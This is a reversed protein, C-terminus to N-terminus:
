DVKLLARTESIYRLSIQTRLESAEARVDAPVDSDIALSHLSAFAAHYGDQSLRGTADEFVGCDLGFKACNWAHQTLGLEESSLGRRALSTEPSAALALNISTLFLVLVAAFKM